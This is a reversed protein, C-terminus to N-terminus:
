FTPLGRRSNFHAAPGPRGIGPVKVVVAIGVQVDRVAVDGPRGARGKWSRRAGPRPSIAASSRVRRRVILLSPVGDIFQDPRVCGPVTGFSINEVRVVLVARERFDRPATPISKGSSLRENARASRSWSPRNSTTSFFRFAGCIGSRACRSSPFRGRSRMGDARVFSCDRHSQSARHGDFCSVDGSWIDAPPSRIETAACCPVKRQLRFLRLSRGRSWGSAWRGSAPRRAIQRDVM